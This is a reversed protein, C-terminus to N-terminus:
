GWKIVFGSSRENVFPQVDYVELNISDVPFRRAM